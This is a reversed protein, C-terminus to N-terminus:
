TERKLRSTLSDDLERQERKDTEKLEDNKFRNIANELVQSRQHRTQWEQKRVTCAQEAVQIHQKQDNIARDINDLFRQYDRLQAGNMGSSGQASFQKLYERRYEQLQSLQDRGQELQRLASGLERAAEQENNAALRHIPKIRKSRNPM